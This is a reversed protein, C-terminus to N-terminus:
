GIDFTKNVDFESNENHVGTPYGRPNCLINTGGITYDSTNHMHGHIWYKPKYDLMFNSLDSAFAPNLPSGIFYELSSKFSPAHHTIIVDGQNVNKKLYDMAAYHKLKSDHANFKRFSDDIKIISFDSMGRNIYFEDALHMDTWLTSGHFTTDEITVSSNQLFHIRPDLDDELYEDLHSINSKYYEHNGTVYIVHDFKELQDNIWEVRGKINIDGALILVDADDNPEETLPAFELHIDSMYKIKM